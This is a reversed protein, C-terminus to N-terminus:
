CQVHIICFFFNLLLDRKMKIKKKPPPPQNINKKEKEYYNTLNNNDKLITVQNKLPFARNKFHHFYRPHPAALLTVRPKNDPKSTRCITTKSVYLNDIYILSTM